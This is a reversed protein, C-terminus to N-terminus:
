NGIYIINSGNVWGDCSHYLCYVLLPNCSGHLKWVDQHLLTFAAYAIPTLWRWSEETFGVTIRWRPQIGTYSLHSEADFGYHCKCHQFFFLDNHCNTDCSCWIISNVNSLFLILMMEFYVISELIIKLKVVKELRQILLYKQETPTQMQHTGLLCYAKMVEFLFSFLWNKISVRESDCNRVSSSALHGVM